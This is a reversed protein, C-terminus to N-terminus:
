GDTAAEWPENPNPSPIPGSWRGKPEDEYGISGSVSMWVSTGDQRFRLRAPEIPQRPSEQWWYWGGVIPRTKSWKM